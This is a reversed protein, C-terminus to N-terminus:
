IYVLREDTIILASNVRRPARHWCSIPPRKVGRGEREREGERGKEEM